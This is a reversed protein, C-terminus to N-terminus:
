RKPSDITRKDAAPAAVHLAGYFTPHAHITRQLVERSAGYGMALVAEAVIERAFASQQADVDIKAGAFRRQAAPLRLCRRCEASGRHASKARRRLGRDRNRHTRAAALQPHLTGHSVFYALRLPPLQGNIRTNYLAPMEDNVDFTM